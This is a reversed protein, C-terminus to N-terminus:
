PLPAIPWSYTPLNLRNIAKDSCSLTAVSQGHSGNEFGLVQLNSIEKGNAKAYAALATSIAIENASTSSGDALFVSQTGSPAVPMVGERLLDNFDNPPCNTLDRPGQM